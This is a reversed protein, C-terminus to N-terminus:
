TSSNSVGGLLKGCSSVGEQLVNVPAGVQGQLLGPANRSFIGELGNVLGEHHACSHISPCQLFCRLCVNLGDPIHIGLAHGRLRVELGDICSEALRNCRHRSGCHHIHVIGEGLDHARLNGVVQVGADIRLMRHRRVICQHLELIHYLGTPSCHATHCENCGACKQGHTCLSSSDM